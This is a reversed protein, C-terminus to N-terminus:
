TFSYYLQNTFIEFKLIRTKPKIVLYSYNIDHFYIKNFVKSSKSFIDIIKRPM